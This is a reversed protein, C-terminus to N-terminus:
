CRDAVFSTQAFANSIEETSIWRRLIACAAIVFARRRRAVQGFRRLKASRRDTPRQALLLTRARTRTANGRLRQRRDFDGSRNEVGISCVKSRVNLAFMENGSTRVHRVVTDFNKM